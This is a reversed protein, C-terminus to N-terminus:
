INAETYHPVFPPMNFSYFLVTKLYIRIVELNTIFQPLSHFLLSSHTLNQTQQRLKIM